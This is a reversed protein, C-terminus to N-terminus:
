IYIFYKSDITKIQHGHNNYTVQLPGGIMMVDVTSELVAKSISGVRVTSALNNVAKKLGTGRLESCSKVLM